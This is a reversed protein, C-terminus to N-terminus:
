MRALLRVAREILSAKAVDFEFTVSRRGAKLTFTFPKSEGALELEVAALELIDIVSVTEGSETFQNGSVSVKALVEDGLLIDVPM